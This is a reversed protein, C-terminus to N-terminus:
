DNADAAVRVVLIGLQEGIDLWEGPTIRVGGPSDKRAADIVERLLALLDPGRAVAENPTFTKNTRPM